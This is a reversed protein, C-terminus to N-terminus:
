LAAMSSVAPPSRAPQECVFGVLGTDGGFELGTQEQYAQQEEALIGM